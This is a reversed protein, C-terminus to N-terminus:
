GCILIKKDKKGPHLSVRVPNFPVKWEGFWGLLYGSPCYQEQLIVTLGAWCIWKVNVAKLRCFSFLVSAKYTYSPSFEM